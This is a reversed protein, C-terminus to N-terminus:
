WVCIKEDNAYLVVSAPQEEQESAIFVDWKAANASFSFSEIDKDMFDLLQDQFWNGSAIAKKTGRLEAYIKLKHDDQVMDNIILDRLKM